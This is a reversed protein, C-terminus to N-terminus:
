TGKRQVLSASTVPAIREITGDRGVAVEVCFRAGSRKPDLEIMNSETREQLYEPEIMTYEARIVIRDGDRRLRYSCLEHSGHGKVLTGQQGDLTTPSDDSALARQSFSLLGQQAFRSVHYLWEEDGGTLALLTASADEMQRLYEPTGQSAVTKPDLVLQRQGNPLEVFYHASRLDRVFQSSMRTPIDPSVLTHLPTQQADMAVLETDVIAQISDAAVQTEASALWVPMEPYFIEHLLKSAETVLSQQSRPGEAVQPASSTVLPRLRACLASLEKAPMEPLSDHLAETLDTKGPWDKPLAAMATDFHRACAQLVNPARMEAHPHAIAQLLRQVAQKARAEFQQNVENTLTDLFDAIDDGLDLSDDKAKDLGAKLMSLQTLNMADLHVRMRAKVYGYPSTGAAGPLAAVAQSAEICANVCEDVAKPSQKDPHSLLRFIDGVRHSCKRLAERAQPKARPGCALANAVRIGKRQVFSFARLVPSRRKGSPTRRYRNGGLPSDGFHQHPDIPAYHAVNSVHLPM